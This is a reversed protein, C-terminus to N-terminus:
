LGISRKMDRVYGYHRRYRYNELSNTDSVSMIANHLGVAAKVQMQEDIYLYYIRPPLMKTQWIQGFIHSPDRWKTAGSDTKHLIMHQIELPMDQITPMKLTNAFCVKYYM